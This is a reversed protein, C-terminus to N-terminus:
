LGSGFSYINAFADLLLVHSNGAAISKISIGNPFRYIENIKEGISDGNGFDNCKFLVATSDANKELFQFRFEFLFNTQFLSFM